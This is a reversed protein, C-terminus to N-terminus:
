DARAGEADTERVGVSSLGFRQQLVCLSVIHMRLQDFATQAETDM